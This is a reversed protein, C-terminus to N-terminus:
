GRASLQGVLGVVEALRFPKAIVRALLQGDAYEEANGSMFCCMVAPNFARLRALTAPGDLVPMRVDLFVLAIESGDRRYLELAERGDAALWVRFGHQELVIRLLDRICAEDDVV